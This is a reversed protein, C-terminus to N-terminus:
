CKIGVRKPRVPSVEDYHLLILYQISDVCSIHLKNRGEAMFHLTSFCKDYSEDFLPCEELLLIIYRIVLFHRVKPQVKESGEQKM